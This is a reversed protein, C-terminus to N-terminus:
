ENERTLSKFLNIWKEGISEISYKLTSKQCNQAMSNMREQDNMLGSLRSIYNEIDFPKILLGNENDTIVDKISAFSEFAIPVTGFRQAEALVLPFGEYASTMCLIKARNYFSVPNQVGLFYIRELKMKNSIKELYKREVGDGVISLRWDPFRDMIKGWINLLLDVRKQSTNIRGVFLLENEKEPLSDPAEFTCPNAISTIKNKNCNTIFKKLEPFFTESLLVIQDYENYSFTYHKRYKLIYAQFLIKSILKTQLFNKLFPIPIRRIQLAHSSTYNLVNGLLSNHIVSIVKVDFDSKIKICFRSLNPDIGSQNIIIHIHNNKVLSNYFDINEKSQLHKSNPLFYQNSNENSVPKTASLYIVRHGLSTFYICLDHTVRQVGGKHANIESSYFFLLNM